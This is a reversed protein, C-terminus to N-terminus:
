FARQEGQPPGEFEDEPVAKVERFAGKAKVCRKVGLEVQSQTYATAYVVRDGDENLYTILMQENVDPM